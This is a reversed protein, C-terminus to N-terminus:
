ETWARELLKGIIESNIEILSNNMRSPTFMEHTLRELIVYSPILAIVTERVKLKINLEKIVSYINSIGLAEELQKIIEYDKYLKVVAPMTFACALGHPVDFHATIPYSISHCISTRTHSIALGAFLSAECMQDHLNSTRADSALKTLNDLGLKISHIAYKITISNANKNWLSEFAQNLADLATYKAIEIPLKYILEPDVIAFDPFVAPGAISFKKKEVDDWVTAFPTVESGTGATTPIAYLIFDKDHKQPQNIIEKLDPKKNDGSLAVAIVKASDIASGGGFGVIAEFSNNSFRNIESQLDDISPNTKVSTIWKIGTNLTLKHLVDDNSIQNFGRKTTVFLCRKSILDEVIKIRCKKGFYINTPNFFSWNKEM